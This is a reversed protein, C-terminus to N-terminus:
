QSRLLSTIQQEAIEGELMEIVAERENLFYIGPPVMLPKLLTYREARAAETDVHIREIPIAASGGLATQLAAWSADIRKRTCDCCNEKDIFVVKAVKSKKPMAPLTPTASGALADAQGPTTKARECGISICCVSGLLVLLLFSVKKM